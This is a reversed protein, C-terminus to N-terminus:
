AFIVTLYTPISVLFFRIPISVLKLPEQDLVQTLSILATRIRLPVAM